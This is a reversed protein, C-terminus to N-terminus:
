KVSCVEGGLKIFINRFKEGREEYSSFMDFSSCGPSLLLIDGKEAREFLLNVAEEMGSTGYFPIDRGWATAFIERSRGYAAVMKVKKKLIPLLRGPEGGKLIGGVVLLINSPFSSLAAEMSALTTSKSDNYFAVGKIDGLYELRHPPPSFSHLASVFERPSVGLEKCVLYAAHINERNHRGKLPSPIEENGDYFIKRPHPNCRDQYKELSVNIIAVDERKQNKFINLKAEIYEHMDTHYDLHNPSINLLVGIHPRFHLINQLQFSSVELLVIPKKQGCLIYECLPIGYNAGVFHPVNLLSLVHHIIGVTTTKGNSGTVAVVKEGKLFWSALELESVVPLDRKILPRIRHVPVGPSLVVLDADRFHHPSHEGLHLEVGMDKIHRQREEGIISPDRELLVVDAGERGCVKAAALGSRGAGVVIIKKDRISRM